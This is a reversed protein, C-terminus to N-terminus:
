ALYCVCPPKPRNMQGSIGGTRPDDCAVPAELIAALLPAKERIGETMKDISKQHEDRDPAFPPTGLRPRPNPNCTPAFGIAM